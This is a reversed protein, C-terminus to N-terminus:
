AARINRRQDQPFVGTDVHALCQQCHIEQYSDAREDHKVYFRTKEGEEAQERLRKDHIADNLAKIGAFVKNHDGGFPLLDGGVNHLIETVAHSDVGNHTFECFFFLGHDVSHTLAHLSDLKAISHALDIGAGKDDYRGATLDDSAAEATHSFRSLSYVWIMFGRRSVGPTKM